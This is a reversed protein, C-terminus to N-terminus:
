IDWSFTIVFDWSGADPNDDGVRGPPEWTRSARVLFTSTGIREAIQDLLDDFVALAAAAPSDGTGDGPSWCVYLSVSDAHRTIRLAEDEAASGEGLRLIAFPAAAVGGRVDQWHVNSASLGITAAAPCALVLDQVAQLVNVSWGM